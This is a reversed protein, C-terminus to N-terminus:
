KDFVFSAKVAKIQLFQLCLALVSYVGLKYTLSSLVSLTVM